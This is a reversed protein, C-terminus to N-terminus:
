SILSYELLEFLHRSSKNKLFENTIWDNGVQYNKKAFHRRNSKKPETAQVRKILIILGQINFTESLKPGIRDFDQWLHLTRTDPPDARENTWQSLKLLEPSILFDHLVEILVRLQSESQNQSM